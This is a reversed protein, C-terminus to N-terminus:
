EQLLEDIDAVIERWHSAANRAATAQVGERLSRAVIRQYHQRRKDCRERLARLIEDLTM